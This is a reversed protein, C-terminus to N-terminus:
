GLDDKLRRMEAAMRELADSVREKTVEWWDDESVTRLRDADRKMQEVRARTDDVQEKDQGSLADELAMEMADIREELRGVLRDRRAEWENETGGTAVEAQPAAARWDRVARSVDREV